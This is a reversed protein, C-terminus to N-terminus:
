LIVEYANANITKGMVEKVNSTYNIIIIVGNEYTNKVVGNEIIERNILNTNIVHKLADNLYHYSENIGEKFDEFLTTYYQNPTYRMKFTNEKTLIYSPYINFDVMMLLREKGLANFNLYPTYVPMVGQLIIPIFPVLDTYVSYQMNTISLNKYETLYKWLYSNANNLSLTEHQKAIGEYYGKTVSRPKIQGQYYSFLMEGLGDIHAAGYKHIFSLDNNAKLSSQYPNIVKMTLGSSWDTRTSYVQNVRSTSKAVDRRDNVRNSLTSALTYNQNLFLLNNDNDLTQKLNTYHKSNEFFSMSNLGASAGQKSYGLLHVSQNKIGASKLTEYMDLVDNARTMVIRRQGFLSPELDSMLYTTQLTIDEKLPQKFLNETQLLYNKYHNAIGIYSADEKLFNYNIKYDSNTKVNSISDSGTGAQDIIRRSIERLFFRLSVRNYNGNGYFEATLLTQEDGSSVHAYFGQQNVEHIFGFLPVSLHNFYRRSYGLDDGYFRGHILQTSPKDLRILAGVGDPILVYGPTYNERTSGFFPLLTISIVTTKTTDEVISDNPILLSLSGNDLRVVVDFSFLITKIDIHFKVHDSGKTDTVSVKSQNYSGEQLTFPNLPTTPADTESKFKVDAFTYLSSISVASQEPRATQVHEIWIGSNIRRRYDANGELKGQYGQFEPRSSYYYDAIKDYVIISFSDKEVYVKLYADELADYAIYGYKDLYAQTPRFTMETHYKELREPDITEQQTYRSSEFMKTEIYGFNKNEFTKQLNFVENARVIFFSVSLFLVFLVVYKLKAM